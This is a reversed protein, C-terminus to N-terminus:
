QEEKHKYVLSIMIDRVNEPLVIIEEEGNGNFYAIVDDRDAAACLLLGDCQNTGTAFNVAEKRSLTWSFGLNTRDLQFGRIGRYIVLQESLESIDTFRDTVPKNLREFIVRLKDSTFYQYPRKKIWLSIFVFALTDEDLLNRDFLQEFLREAVYKREEPCAPDKPCKHLMSVLRVGLDAEGTLCRMCDEKVRQTEAETLRVCAYDLIENVVIGNKYWCM